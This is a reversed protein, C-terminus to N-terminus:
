YLPPVYLTTAPTVHSADLYLLPIKLARELGRPDFSAEYVTVPHAPPYYRLLKAVLGPFSSLDYGTSEYTWNGVTGVQWLLLHAAPDIPQRGM